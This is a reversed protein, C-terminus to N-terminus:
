HNLAPRKERMVYVGFLTAAGVLYAAIRNKEHDPGVPNKLPANKFKAVSEIVPFHFPYDHHIPKVFVFLTILILGVVFLNKQVTNM